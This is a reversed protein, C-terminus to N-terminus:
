AAIADIHGAGSSGTTAYGYTGTASNFATTGSVGWTTTGSAQAVGLSTAAFFSISVTANANGGSAGATATTGIAEGTITGPSITGVSTGWHAASCTVTLVGNRASSPYAAAAIAPGVALEWVKQVRALTTAPELTSTLGELAISLSRPAAKRM